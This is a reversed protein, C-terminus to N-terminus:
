GGAQPVPRIVALAAWTRRPVDPDGARRRDALDARLRELDRPTDVDYWPALERLSLGAQRARERTAELVASTGWPIGAFLAPHPARVALLYYGGDDAPGAVADASDLAAFAERLRATPLHPTDSGVLAVAGFGEDTRRRVTQAMRAGLDGRAQREVVAGSPLPAAAPHGSWAVFFSALGACALGLREISDDTMARHLALAEAPTCAPLLRTKVEGLAPSRAYLM